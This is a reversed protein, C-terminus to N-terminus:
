YYSVKKVSVVKRSKGLLTLSGSAEVVKWRPGLAVVRGVERTSHHVRGGKEKNAVWM